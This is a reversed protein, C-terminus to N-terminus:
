SQVAMRAAEELQEDREINKRRCDLCEGESWLAFTYVGCQQCKLTDSCVKRKMHLRKRLEM